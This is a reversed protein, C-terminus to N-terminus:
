LTKYSTQKCTNKKLRGSPNETAFYSRLKIYLYYQFFFVVFFRCLKLNLLLLKHIFM